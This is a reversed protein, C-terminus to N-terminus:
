KDKEVRYDHHGEKQMAGLNRVIKAAEENRGAKLAAELRDIEEILDNMKARFGEVMKKRDAEPLSAAKEPELKAAAVAQEKLVAVRQLSDENQAPDSVQRRLRRFAGSMKEMKQGLETEPKKSHRGHEGPPQTEDAQSVVATALLLSTILALIRTKM